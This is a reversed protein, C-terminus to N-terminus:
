PSSSQCGQACVDTNAHKCEQTCAHSTLACMPPTPTHCTHVRLGHAQRTNEHTRRCPHPLPFLCVSLSNRHIILPRQFSAGRGNSAGPLNRARSWAQRWCASGAWTLGHEWGTAWPQRAPDRLSCLARELAAKLKARGLDKRGKGGLCLTPWRTLLASHQELGM